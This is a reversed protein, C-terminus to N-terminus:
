SHHESRSAFTKSGIFGRSALRLSTSTAMTTWIRSPWRCGQGPPVAFTAGYKAPGAYAPHDQIDWHATGIAQWIGNLDPKGDWSRAAETQASALSALGLLVVLMASAAALNTRSNM